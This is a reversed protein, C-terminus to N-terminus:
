MSNNLVTIEPIYFILKYVMISLTMDKVKGIDKYVFVSASFKIDRQYKSIIKIAIDVQRSITDIPFFDMCPPGGM